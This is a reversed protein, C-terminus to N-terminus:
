CANRQQRCALEAAAAAAAPQTAAGGALQELIAHSDPLFPYSHVQAAAAAAPYIATLAPAPVPCTANFPCPTHPSLWRLAHLLWMPEDAPPFDVPAGWVVICPLRLM